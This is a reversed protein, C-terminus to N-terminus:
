KRFEKVLKNNVYLTMLVMYVVKGFWDSVSVLHAFLLLYVVYSAKQLKVWEKLAMKKKILDFSTIFLPLIIVMSAIGFLNMQRDVFLHDIVHPLISIVGLIAYFARYLKLKKTIRWDNPLVGTFMVVNFMAFGILGSGILPEEIFMTGIALTTLGIYVMWDYQSRRQYKYSMLVLIISVILVNISLHAVNLLVISALLILTTIM